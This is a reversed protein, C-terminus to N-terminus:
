GVIGSREIGQVLFKQCFLYLIVLPLIIMIGCTNNVASTYLQMGAHDIDLSKPVGVINPMLIIDRNGQMFMEVYFNDTWQWSFSLLFITVLMPVSMPLIIRIFTKLTGAGDVYAAEELEDPVGKYYQRMIFIYLGNKFGVAGFSLIMLPWHTDYLNAIYAAGDASGFAKKLFGGIGWIDFYQFAMKMSFQLTKHPVVMTLIVCAFLFGKGKFNFKSFGYGVLACSMMQIFGCAISIMATNTLAEIYKNDNIIAKYTDLTPYKPILKVSVDVFDERSMFSSSLKSIYPFIVVYSIGILLVLRFVVLAARKLFYMSLYKYRMRTWFPTQDDFKLKGKKDYQPLNMSDM